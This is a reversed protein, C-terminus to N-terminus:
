QERALCEPLRQLWGDKDRLEAHDFLACVFRTGFRRTRVQQCFIGPESACTKEGANIAIALRRLM